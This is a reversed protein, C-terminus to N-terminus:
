YFITRGRRPAEDPAGGEGGGLLFFYFIDFRGGLLAHIERGGSPPCVVGM